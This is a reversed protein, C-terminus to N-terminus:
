RIAGATLGRIFQKSMLVFVILVPVTTIAAGVMLLNLGTGYQSVLLSLMLPLTYRSESNLIILPQLLDGWSTLFLIIGVTGLAPRVLPLVIRIFFYFYGCGDVRAAGLLEEPIASAIYQRMFFIGVASAINPVILAQYQDIWGFHAMMEYWPVLSVVGPLTLTTLLLMFLINKGRFSFRAFAFGALSCFFVGCLAVSGAILISNAFALGAPVSNFLQRLNALLNSGPLLPAPARYLRSNTQTAAIFMWYIPFIAVASAIIMVVYVPARRVGRRRPSPSPAREMAPASIM